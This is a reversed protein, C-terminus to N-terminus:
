FIVVAGALDKGAQKIKVRRERVIAELLLSEEAERERTKESRSSGEL